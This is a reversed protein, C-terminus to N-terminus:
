RTVSIFTPLNSALMESIISPIEEIIDPWYQKINPLLNMFDRIDSADHSYGDHAYDKDRGGGVMHVPIKEHDIYTRITEFGRLFFPTITYVVPIKGELALGCSIDLLSQEAAGTNIFRDPFDARIKDFQGYGLDGTLVFIKENKIMENYLSGAFWGRQSQHFTSQDLPTM